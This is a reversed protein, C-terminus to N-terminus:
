IELERIHIESETGQLILDYSGALLDPLVFNGGEDVSTTAVPEGAQWLSATLEQTETGMVLGLLIKRDSRLEQDRVDIAVRVDGARYVRPEDAEGRVAMGAGAQIQPLSGLLEGGLGEEVLQAILVGVRELPGNQRVSVSSAMLDELVALERQCHPCTALHSRVPQVGGPSLTGIHYEGLEMSSPCTIRYLKGTLTDHL